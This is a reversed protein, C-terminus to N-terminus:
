SIKRGFMKLISLSTGDQQSGTGQNVGCKTSGGAGAARQDVAGGSGCTCAGPVMRM